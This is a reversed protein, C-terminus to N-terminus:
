IESFSHYWKIMRSSTCITRAYQYHQNCKKILVLFRAPVKDYTKLTVYPYASALIGMLEITFGIDLHSQILRLLLM